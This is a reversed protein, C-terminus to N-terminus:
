RGLTKPSISYIVDELSERIGVSDYSDFTNSPQAM